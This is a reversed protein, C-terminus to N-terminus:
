LYLYNRWEFDCWFMKYCKNERMKRLNCTEYEWLLYFELKWDKCTRVLGISRVSGLCWKSTTQVMWVNCFCGFSMIVKWGGYTCIKLRLLSDELKSTCKGIKWKLCWGFIMHSSDWYEYVVQLLLIMLILDWELSAVAAMGSWTGPAKLGNWADLCRRYDDNFSDLDLFLM